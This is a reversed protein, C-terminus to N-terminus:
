RWFLGLFIFIIGLGLLGLYVPHYGRLVYLVISLVLEVGGAAVIRLKM